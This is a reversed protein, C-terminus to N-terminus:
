PKVGKESEPFIKPFLESLPSETEKLMQLMMPTMRRIYDILYQIAKSRGMKWAECLKDLYELNENTLYISINKGLVSL